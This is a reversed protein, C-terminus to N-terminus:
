GEEFTSLISYCVNTYFDVPEADFITNYLAFIVLSEAYNSAFAANEANTICCLPDGSANLSHLRSLM